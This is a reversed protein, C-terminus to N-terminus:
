ARRRAVAATGLLGLAMLVWSSPEPVEPAFSATATCQPMWAIMPDCTKMSLSSTIVGFDRVSDLVTVGAPLLGLSTVFMSKATPTLTLGSVTNDLSPNGSMVNFANAGTVSAFTWVAIKDQYGVGNGGRIDAYITKGQLDVSIDRIELSGGSNTLRDPWAQLIAGGQTQVANVAMLHSADDYQAGLGVIPANVAVALYQALHNITIDAVSPKIESVEVGAANLATLLSKSFSLTGEGKLGGLTYGSLEYFNGQTIAGNVVEAQAVLACSLMSAAILSPYVRKM